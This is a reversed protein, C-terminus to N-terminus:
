FFNKYKIKSRGKKRYYTTDTTPKSYPPYDCLIFERDTLSYNGYMTKRNQGRRLPTRVVGSCSPDNACVQQAKVELTYREDRKPFCTM